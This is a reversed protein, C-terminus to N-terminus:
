DCHLVHIGASWLHLNISTFFVQYALARGKCVAPDAALDPGWKTKRQAHRSNDEKSATATDNKSTAGRTVISGALKNKPIVFGAKTGFISIKPTLSQPAASKPRRHEILSSQDLKTAMSRCAISRYFSTKLLLPLLAPASGIIRAFSISTLTQPAGDRM